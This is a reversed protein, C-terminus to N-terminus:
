FAQGISIYLAIKSEGPQRDIPTAVDVRLPGFNTYYRGGLGAGYRLHSIGPTSSEGLRGMDFFPVVGFNGFRYRVEAAFETSSLGGIPNNQADKPGLEQYGFGRVSGGGGVYIRRSPAIEGIDNVGVISSVLVRGALVISKGIPYYGTVQGTLRGYGKVGKHISGEPSVRALARFGKTPNLLDNSRDYQVQVPLAAILYNKRPRDGTATLAAGQENTGVLEAGYSYTWRKQWIPTSQRSWNVGLNITKAEYADYNTRDFGGTIQFTKDRKGANSRRFTANAGQEQTGGVLGLILAGEPPFMNRATWTVEGKIGQGTGYGADAAWSHWPGKAQTVELDTIETGDAAKVGTDVPQIAVTSFIGTAVLAQRLDDTKRSDYLDGQRFRPFVALHKETFIKAGKGAPKVRGFSSKPGSTLPMTYDGTHKDSDLLVDRDGVKAFPYGRQPLELAVQAEGGTINLSRIPDGVKIASTLAETAIGTPQPDAGTVLISSLTYRPGPTVSITAVVQGPQNPVAVVTSSAVGDYYGESRLIKAALAEDDKARATVQAANAAKKKGAELESLSRFEDELGIKSLGEVKVAYRIRTEETGPVSAKSTDPTPDFGALPPLPQALAPDNAVPSTVPATPGVTAPPAQVSDLPPLAANFSPDTAPDIARDPQQQETQAPPDKRAYAPAVIALAMALASM